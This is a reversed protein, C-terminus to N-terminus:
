FDSITAPDATNTAGSGDNTYTRNFTGGPVTPSACCSEGNPGCDSLGSGSSQCSPPMVGSGAAGGAGSAGGTSSTGGAAVTGGSGSGGPSTASGGTAGSSGGAGSQGGIAVGSGGTAVGSGGTAVGSGGTASGASGGTSQNNGCALSVCAFAILALGIPCRNM